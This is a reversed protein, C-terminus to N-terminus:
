RERQLQEPVSAGTNTMGEGESCTKALSVEFGLFEEPFKGGVTKVLFFRKGEM